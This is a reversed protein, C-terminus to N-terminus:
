NKLLKVTESFGDSTLRLFYLGTSLDELSLRHSAGEFVGSLRTRGEIDVVIYESPQLSKTKITLDFFAPIPFVEFIQERETSLPEGIITLYNPIGYGLQNNPNAALSGSNRILDFIEARTLEPYAQWVSAAFGAILPAAFSTGSNTGINGSSSIVVTSSGMAAVDPKIRNDSTPGFSSFGSKTKSANVSGVSLVNQGDAPATIYFWSDNGANGASTVVLIGRESAWEAAKTITATQGDMDSYSYNMYEYNNTGSLPGFTSYGVSTHIIDVGASDAKEAAFLWNYEEIWYESDTSGDTQYVEETVALILSVDPGTGSITTSYRAAICSLVQTGHDDYQYPNDTNEIFDYTAVVKSSNHLHAFASGTNVGEFGGDFVAMLIGDGTYGADHMAIAGLMNLQTNTTLGSPAPDTFIEPIAIEEKVTSLRVGPAVLIVSQVSGLAEVETVKAPDMQVLIGNMWKTKFFVEAGTVDKVDQIYDPNVPLDQENLAVGNKLRRDISRQSLFELPADITYTSSAKDTFFVMYRNQAGISGAWLLIFLILCSNRAM